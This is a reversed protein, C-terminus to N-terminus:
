RKSSKLLRNLERLFIRYVHMLFPKKDFNAYISIVKPGRIEHKWEKITKEGAKRYQRLSQICLYYNIWKVGEHFSREPKPSQDTALLYSMWPFNMGCRTSLYNQQWYRTNIEILKLQQDKEDFKFEASGVGVYNISDFLRKGIDVLEQVFFSKASSAIGFHIPYQHIKKLTFVQYYKGDKGRNICVKYNQDDSSRVIEQLIVPVGMKLIHNLHKRLSEEDRVVFGKKTGSVKARWKTVDQAKIFVPYSIQPELQDLKDLNSIAHTMPVPINAKKALQYLTFKDNVQDILTSTSIDIRFCSHIFDSEKVFFRLYEDAAIYLVPKQSCSNALKALESKFQQSNGIPHPLIQADIYKSFVGIERYHSVGIIKLKFPALSHAIGLGTESLGLIVIPADINSM